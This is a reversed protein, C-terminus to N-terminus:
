DKVVTEGKDVWNTIGGELDYIEEFGMEKLKKAASASRGGKKCYVYIPKSRDYAGVKSEFDSDKININVASELHGSEFEEPTRVDILQVETQVKQLESPSVLSITKKTSESNNEGQTKDKQGCANFVVTFALVLITAIKHKM